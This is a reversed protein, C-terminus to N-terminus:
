NIEDIEDRQDTERKALEVSYGGRDLSVCRFLPVVDVMYVLHVLRVFCVLYVLLPM